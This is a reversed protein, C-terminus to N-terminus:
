VSLCHKVNHSLFTPDHKQLFASVNGRKILCGWGVEDQLDEIRLVILLLLDVNTNECNGGELHASLAKTQHEPSKLTPSNRFDRGM